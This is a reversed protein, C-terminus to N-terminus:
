ECVWLDWTSHLFHIKSMHFFPSSVIIHGPNSRGASHIFPPRRSHHPTSQPLDEKSTQDVTSIDDFSEREMGQLHGFSADEASATVKHPGLLDQLEYNYLPQQLPEHGVLPM